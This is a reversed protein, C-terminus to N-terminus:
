CSLASSLLKEVEIPTVNRNEGLRIMQHSVLLKVVKAIEKEGISYDKLGTKFGLSKFFELTRNLAEDIAENESICDINWVNSAYQLLKEKKPERFYNLYPIVVLALARAHPLNTVASLEHSIMHSAWDMPVGARLFGNMAMSSSLMVNSRAEYDKPEKVLKLGDEILTQLISEAFRDQLKAGVPYTLYQELVHVFIDLVGNATLQAPLDFTLEPDLISFQPYILPNGMPLKIKKSKRSIVADRNVESGSAPLTVITALPLAEKVCSGFSQIIKYPDGQYKAAMAIFKAGDIVSGGGAALLYDVNNQRALQVGNLLYDFDPDPAIGSFEIIEGRDKLSTKIMDYTGNEKLSKAGYVLMIKKGVPIEGKVAAVAGKGFIIKTPSYLTFNRLM